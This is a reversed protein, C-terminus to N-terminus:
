FDLHISFSSGRRHHLRLPPCYSRRSGFQMGISTGFRHRHRSSYHYHHSVSVPVDYWAHSRYRHSRSHLKPSIRHHHKPSVRYHISGTVRSRPPHAYGAYVKRQVDRRAADRHVHRRRSAQHVAAEARERATPRHVAPLVRVHEVAADQLVEAERQIQQHAKEAQRSTNNRQIEAVRRSARQVRQPQREVRRPAAVSVRERGNVEYAYARRNTHADRIIRVDAKGRHHDSRLVETARSREGAAAEGGRSERAAAGGPLLLVTSVCLALLGPLSLSIGRRM